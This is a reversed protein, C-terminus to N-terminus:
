QNCEPASVVVRVEGRGEWGVGWFLLSSSSLFVTAKFNRSTGNNETHGRNDKCVGWAFEKAQMQFCVEEGEFQSLYKLKEFKNKNENREDEEELAGKSSSVGFSFHSGHKVM